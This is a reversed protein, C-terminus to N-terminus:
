LFIMKPLVLTKPMWIARATVASLKVSFLFVHGNVHLIPLEMEINRSM